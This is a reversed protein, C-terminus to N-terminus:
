SLFQQSLPLFYSETTTAVECIHLITFSLILTRIVDTLGMLFSSRRFQISMYLNILVFRPM